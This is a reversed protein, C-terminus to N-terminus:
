NEEFIHVKLFVSTLESFPRLARVVANLFELLSDFIRVPNAGALKDTTVNHMTSVYWGMIRRWKM